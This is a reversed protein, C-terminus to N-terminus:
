VNPVGAIGTFPDTFINSIASEINVYIGNPYAEPFYIDFDRVGANVGVMGTLDCRLSQLTRSGDQNIMFNHYGWTAGTRTRRRTDTGDTFTARWDVTNYYDNSARGRFRFGNPLYGTINTFNDLTLTAAPYGSVAHEGVTGPNGFARGIGYGTSFISSVTATFTFSNNGQTATVTTTRSTYNGINSFVGAQYRSHNVFTGDQDSVSFVTTPPLSEYVTLDEVVFLSSSTPLGPIHSATSANSASTIQSTWTLSGSSNILFDDYSGTSGNSDALAGSIQTDAFRSPKTTQFGYRSNFKKGEM